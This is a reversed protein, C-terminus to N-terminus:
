CPELVTWYVGGLFNSRRLRETVRWAPPPEVVTSVGTGLIVARNALECWLPLFDACEDFLNSPCDLSVVDWTRRHEIDASITYEFADEQVFEWGAPYVAEMEGLKEADVDVCTATLGADAMWIADQQGHFAAAFLVLATECGELRDRPYLRAAAGVRVQELTVAGM